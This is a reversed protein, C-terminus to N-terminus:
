FHFMDQSTNSINGLFFGVLDVKQLFMVREFSNMQNVKAVRWIKWSVVGGLTVTLIKLSFTVKM